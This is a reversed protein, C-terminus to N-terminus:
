QGGERETFKLTVPLRRRTRSPYANAQTSSSGVARRVLLRGREGNHESTYLLGYAPQSADVDIDRLTRRGDGLQQYVNCPTGPPMTPLFRAVFDRAQDRCDGPGDLLFRVDYGRLSLVTNVAASQDTLQVADGTWKTTDIVREAPRSPAIGAPESATLVKLGGVTVEAELGTFGLVKRLAKAAATTKWVPAGSAGTPRTRVIHGEANFYWRVRLLVADTKGNDRAELCTTPYADDADLLVGRSRMLAPISQARYAYAPSDFAAGTSPDLRLVKDEVVGRAWDNVATVRHVTGGTNVATQGAVDFGFAANDAGPTVDFVEASCEIWVRDNEDIGTTITGAGTWGADADGPLSRISESGRGNVAALIDDFRTTSANIAVTFVGVAFLDIGAYAEWDQEPLIAILPAFTQSPM